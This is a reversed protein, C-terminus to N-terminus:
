AAAGIQAPAVDLWRGTPAGFTATAADYVVEGCRLTMVTRGTFMWGSYASWGCKARIDAADFSWVHHPDFIMLDADAGAALRGKQGALGFLDAPASACLRALSRLHDDIPVWPQRRRMGTFVAGAM